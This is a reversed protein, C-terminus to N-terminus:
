PKENLIKEELQQVQADTLPTASGDLTALLADEGLNWCTRRWRRLAALITAAELTTLHVTPMDDAKGHRKVRIIASGGSSRQASRPTTSLIGSQPLAHAKSTAGIGSTPVM